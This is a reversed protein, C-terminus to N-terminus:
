GTHEVNATKNDDSCCPRTTSELLAGGTEELILRQLQQQCAIVDSLSCADAAETQMLLIFNDAVEHWQWDLM